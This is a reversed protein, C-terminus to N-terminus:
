RSYKAHFKEENSLLYIFCEIFAICAPIYTWCFILYLIGQGYRRLYFKHIGFSGLFFALVAAVGRSKRSRYVPEAPTQVVFQIPQVPQYPPPTTPHYQQPQPQQVQAIEQGCYRCESTNASVPAGCAPCNRTSM